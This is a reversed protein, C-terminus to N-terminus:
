AAKTVAASMQDLVALAKERTGPDPSRSLATV